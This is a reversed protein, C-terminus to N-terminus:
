SGNGWTSTPSIINTASTTSFIAVEFAFNLKLLIQATTSALMYSRSFNMFLQKLKWLFLFQVESNRSSTEM